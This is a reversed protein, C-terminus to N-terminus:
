PIPTVTVSINGIAGVSLVTFSGETAFTSGEFSTDIAQVSWYYTGPKLNKLKWSTNQNVNGMQVVKRTGNSNAMPSMIDSGGPTTGVRLNYTLGAQPTEADSAPNWNLTVSNGNVSSILGLPPTSATNVTFINNRYVKASGSSVGLQNGVLLIDLDSDNDYDGWSVSSGFVGQLNTSIDTFSGGDNRYLKSIRSPAAGTLLIDLDGDNDYDGWDVSSYFAGQLGANIETFSGADNRYIKAVPSSNNPTLGTLLVDLDGDNDYDGWAADGSFVGTLSANIDTFSGSDNRYIKSIDSSVSGDSNGTILIDLDGDKDYDGWDTSGQWVGQLNAATDTFSGSDNRYVKAIKVSSGSIIAGGTLLIDLDGDNDYDGWNASSNWVGPLNASIDTFNGGDNRYVKSVPNSTNDLGTLLIDLDGDRDYDGWDVSSNKVGNLAANIDTFNGSDNRYVKAISNPGKTGTVLIDLDSDNDYDGWAASSYYSGDLNANIDTFLETPAPNAVIAIGQSFESTNNNPDTATATIFQGIPVAVPLKIEVNANGSSDTTVTQFGLFKEGEGYGGGGFSGNGFGGSGFGSDDLVKNSFFEVRFTTNPTSNIKGKISTNGSSSIASSLEPFNQLNNIGTDADGLDNVTLGNNGFGIGLLDNGSISNSLIANGTSGSGNIFVGNKGNGFILNGADITTGGVTNNSADLIAIGNNTNGLDKTGTVDSGIYNGQILNNNATSETIYIGVNDNGSIINRAKVTKGGIINNPSLISIGSYSNGLDQTGTVDTGIFNGEIINGGNGTLRIADVGFRNITLGRVTSNGASIYLGDVIGANSGDLEIVPRTSYGPQTTGDIIASDTIQPLPSLPRITFANTSTNYGPDTSPIKFIVTDKGPNSNAWNLVARLSGPGSDKTNTVVNPYEDNDAITVTASGDKGITYSEETSLTIAVTEEGEVLNDEIAAIPIAVSSQGAPITVSGSLRQYDLDDSATGGGSYNVKLDYKTNGRRTITMTGTDGNESAIADTAQISVTPKTGYLNLKWSNWFGQIENGNRDIVELTWEGKSSEGWHRTSTFMWPTDSKPDVPYNNNPNIRKPIPRVLFSETGDPSKLKVTLDSWNKHDVDFEIEVNEVTIDKDIIVTSSLGTEGSDDPINEIVNQLISQVKTEGAVPTWNDAKKVAAEPDVAGFGYKHNVWAGAGNQSWGANFADNKQATEVLIHQVDRWSLSRNKELMLAVVGSVFPAAASTGGFGTTYDKEDYGRSGQLDPATIGIGKSSSYASVLLSAGDESYLSKEGRNDIAGVAIAYRSNALGNYNVNGGDLADNGAGFVYINGRGDRGEKVGKEMAKVGPGSDSLWSEEKWSNNYIDIFKNRNKDSLDYLANALTIPNFEDAILRLGAFSAEPAVGSGQYGNSGNALAVGAVSTGHPNYTSFDLGFQNVKGTKLQGENDIRLQWYGPAWQNNADALSGQPQFSGTFPAFATSIPTTALDDFITGSFNSGSGGINRFLEVEPPTSPPDGPRPRWNRPSSLFVLPDFIPENPSVLYGELDSINPHQINLQVNVDTVVGTLPVRLPFYTQQYDPIKSNLSSKPSNENPVKKQYTPLPNADNENFDWSLDSRYQSSLEPHEYEFGDDVIGIVVGKGRALEWASMVNANPNIGTQLHWQTGDKVLPEDKPESLLKPQIPVLPHAFEVRSLSLLSQQVQLPDADEPFQWRYTNPIHGAIGLDVANLSSALQSSSSGPTLWVLWERTNALAEPDYKELNASGVIALRVEDSLGDAGPDSILAFKQSSVASANGAKDYAIASLQYRGPALSSLNDSFNFRGFGDSDSTFQTVDNAIEIKEGGEKQFWFDVKAIDGVGQDDFVKAGNFSIKEGKTYLPLTRFQLDRPATNTPTPTPTITPTPTPTPTPTITPTPTPVPTPTPTITPTPTPTPIAENVTLSKVVTNSTAGEKDYAIAKVEYKGVGLDPLSYSFNGWGLGDAVFTEANGVKIWAGGEKQVSFEVSKLNDVGDADYVKGGTFSINDGVTYTSSIEFQLDKPATNIPTPTPTPTPVPTPTPTITPTPTPTITPTPTPTITPTPTPTITPTPTPPVVVEPNKVTFEKTAATSSAGTKDYAIATLQYDGIGLSNLSYDFSALGASDATFNVADNGLKQWNNQDKNLWFSVQKLDNVGEADYVKGGTLTVIDNPNYIEKVNFQLSTPPTNKPVTNVQDNLYKVVEPLKPRWDLTPEIVRDLAIAKGTANTIEFITDNYDRDSGLDVRLDEMVFVNGKENVDAIQGIHFAESPNAKALSFLPRKTSGITPNNFVEQVTGNPVLMLGFKDGPRMTFFQVGKYQGSNQNAEWPLVADFKAGQNFDSIVVHGLYSNSIIRGSTEKIFEVSDPNLAGLGELSFIGIEGQYTGGDLLLDFGVEGASHVDFFGSEFPLGTLSDITLKYNTDSGAQQVELSYNGIELNGFNIVKPALPDLQTISLIRDNSDKLLWNVPASLGSFSINLNSPETIKFKYTDNPAAFNVSDQNSYTNKFNSIDLISM